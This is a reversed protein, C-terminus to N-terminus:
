AAESAAAVYPAALHKPVVSVFFLYRGLIEGALAFGLAAGFLLVGADSAGALPVVIAGAGLLVGRLVFKKALFVSCAILLLILIYTKGTGFLTRLFPLIVAFEPVELWGGIDRGIGPVSLQYLTTPMHPLYAFVALVCTVFYKKRNESTLFFLGSLCVTFAFLSNIHQNLASMWAFFGLFFFNVTKLNKNFFIEFFYFLLAMSFFAGSIYM